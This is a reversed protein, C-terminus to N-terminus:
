LKGTLFLWLFALKRLERRFRQPSQALRYLSELGLHRLLRPARRFRGAVMDIAGGLFLVYSVGLRSLWAANAHAWFEQKPAGFGVVLVDPRAASLEARILADVSQSFPFPAHPPSFGATRCGHEAALREVARANAETSAGLVFLRRGDRACATAAAQLLDYGSQKAVGDGRKWRTAWLTWQGDVTIINHRLFDRFDPNRRALLILEANLTTVFRPRGCWEFAHLGSPHSISIGGLEWAGVAQGDRSAEAAREMSAEPHPAAQPRAAAAAVIGDGTGRARNRSRNCSGTISARRGPSTARV